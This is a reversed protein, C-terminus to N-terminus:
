KNEIVSKLIDEQLDIMEKEAEASIEHDHGTLHLFGHIVDRALEEEFRINLEKAKQEIYSPCLFIDGLAIIGYKKLNSEDLPFSLVDTANDKHRYQKNLECMRDSEVVQLGLEIQQKEMNFKKLIVNLINRFFREELETHSSHNEYVLELM